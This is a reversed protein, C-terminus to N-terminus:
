RCLSPVNANIGELIQEYILARVNVVVLIDGKVLQAKKYRCYNERSLVKSPLPEDPPLGRPCLTEERHNSSGGPNKGRRHYGRRQRRPDLITYRPM